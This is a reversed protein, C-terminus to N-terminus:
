WDGVSFLSITLRSLNWAIVTVLFLDLSISFPNEISLSLLEILSDTFYKRTFVPM